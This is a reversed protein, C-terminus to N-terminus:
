FHFTLSGGISPGPRPDNPGPPTDPTTLPGQVGIQASVVPVERCPAGVREIESHLNAIASVVDAYRMHPAFTRSLESADPDPAPPNQIALIADRLQNGASTLASRAAAPSV